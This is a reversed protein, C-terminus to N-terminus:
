LCVKNASMIQVLPTLIFSFDVLSETYGECHTDDIHDLRRLMAAVELRTDTEWIGRLTPLNHIDGLLPEHIIRLMPM